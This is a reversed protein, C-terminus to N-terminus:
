VHARGIKLAFDDPLRSEVDSDRIDGLYKYPNNEKRADSLYGIVNIRGTRFDAIADQDNGVLVYSTM